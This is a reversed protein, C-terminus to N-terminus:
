HLVPLWERAIYQAEPYERLIVSISESIQLEVDAMNRMIQYWLGTNGDHSDWQEPTSLAPLSEATDVNSDSKGFVAPFRNQISSAVWAENSFAFETRHQSYFSSYTAEADIHGHTFFEFISIGDVFLGYRHNPLQTTVWTLVEDFSQFVKNAIQIGKGVVHLQFQKMQVQLEHVQPLISSDSSARPEANALAQDHM